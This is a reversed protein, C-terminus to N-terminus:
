IITNKKQILPSANCLPGDPVKDRNVAASLASLVANKIFGGSLEYKLALLKWDIDDALKMAQPIHAKWIKQRMIPDPQRFEIALTIRRHMAEDLDFARNTAMIILGDHREIETLLLNIDTGGKDRSLFIQECEDFFLISDTLKAERFIFKIVEDARNGGLSTYNILLIKKGLSNALANAMMTKGTGSPGFFLLLIGNGYSIVEEFGLEKRHKKYLEFGHVTDMILKKAEDPLIVQDVNVKPFYSHSGEVLENFETDLGVIFDLMRRDLEVLVRMLDGGWSETLRVIGERVLTSAKYFYPRASVEQEFGKCFLQTLQGVTFNPDMRYIEQSIVAGVLALVVSKEFEDMNCAKALRELRPLWEGAEKTAALRKECKAKLMREKARFERLETELQSRDGYSFDSETQEVRRRIKLKVGIWKIQDELYEIDKTYPRIKDPDEEDEETTEDTTHGLQRKKDLLTEERLLTFLDKELTQPQDVEDPQTESGPAHLNSENAEEEEQENYVTQQQPTSSSVAIDMDEEKSKKDELTENSRATKEDKEEEIVDALKTKDIKLLESATLQTGTLAALTEHCLELYENQTPNQKDANFLGQTLHLRTPRLFAVGEQFTMGSFYLMSDFGYRRDATRFGRFFNNSNSGGSESLSTTTTPGTRFEKGTHLVLLYILAKKENQTLGLKHALRELRPLLPPRRGQREAKDKITTPERAEEETEAKEKEKAETTTVGSSPKDGVIPLHQRLKADLLCETAHVLAELTAVSEDIKSKETRQKREKLLQGGEQLSLLQVACLQKKLWLLTDYFNLYDLDDAFPLNPDLKRLREKVTETLLDRIGSISEKVCRLWETESEM